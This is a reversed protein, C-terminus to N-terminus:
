RNCIKKIMLKIKSLQTKRTQANTRNINYNNMKILRGNNTADNFKSVFENCLSWHMEEFAPVLKTEIMNFFKKGHLGFSSKVKTKENELKSLYFKSTSLFNEALCIMQDLLDVNTEKTRLKASYRNLRPRTITENLSKKLHPSKLKASNNLNYKAAVTTTALNVPRKHTIKISTTDNNSLKVSPHSSKSLNTRKVLKGNSAKASYLNIMSNNASLKRVRNQVQQGNVLVFLTLILWSVKDLIM